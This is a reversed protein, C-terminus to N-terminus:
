PHQQLINYICFSYSYSIHPFRYVVVGVLRVWIKRGCKGGAFWVCFNWGSRSSVSGLLVWLNWGSEVITGKAQRSFVDAPPLSLPVHAKKSEPSLLINLFLEVNDFLVPVCVVLHSSDARVRRLVIFLLFHPM